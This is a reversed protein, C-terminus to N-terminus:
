FVEEDVVAAGKKVFKVNLKQCIDGRFFGLDFSKGMSSLSAM